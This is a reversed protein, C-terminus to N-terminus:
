PMYISFASVIQYLLELSSLRERVEVAGSERRRPGGLDKRHTNGSGCGAGACYGTVMVDVAPEDDSPSLSATLAQGPHGGQGPLPHRPGQGPPLVRRAPGSKGLTGAPGPQAPQTVAWEADSMDSLYRPVRTSRSIDGPCCRCPVASAGQLTQAFGLTLRNLATHRYRAGPPGTM